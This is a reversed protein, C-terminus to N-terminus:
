EEAVTLKLHRVRYTNDPIMEKCDAAYSNAAAQCNFAAITEYFPQGEPRCEVKYTLPFTM